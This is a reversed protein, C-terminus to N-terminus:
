TAILLKDPSKAPIRRTQKHDLVADIETQLNFNFTYNPKEFAVM